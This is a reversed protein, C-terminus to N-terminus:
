VKVGYRKFLKHKNYDLVEELTLGHLELLKALYYCVDGLEEKIEESRDKENHFFLKKHLDLVEGSEASLGSVANWVHDEWRKCREAANWTRDVVDKKHKELLNM